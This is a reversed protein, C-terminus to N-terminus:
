PVFLEESLRDAAVAAPTLLMPHYRNTLWRGLMNAYFPSGIIGSQGGPIIQFANVGASTMEGVFRRSPGSGFMFGNISSARANHSSADVVEYGGARGVGRLGPGVDEFGAAQPINFPGGLVHDFVIRHLKGWRYDTQNTSNGFAAAFTNSALLDLAERLSRLLLIDRAAEPTPAGNVVFFNVGSAGRGRRTAFNDLLHRLASLAQDDPPLQNRLGVRTLAADITNAIIRSRWVSYITAAVSHRIETDSPEALNDPNDGPDYGQRLGTPTSFNWGALRAIAEGVGPDNALEALPASAGFNRGNTYANLIYPTLVEADLMQNNGQFRMMDAVSIKGGGALKAQILRVIRGMRNGNAYGVNLYYIGGGRRVQNLPNNDLTTGIPDQNANAVFGSSPNVVQPMEDFPLIEYDLAQGPQRNQVPLWENRNQGTGDRFLFPPLGSVEGAQLDERLPLESSTFYAINGDVDAYSWNQSGFDFFQLGQKFDDINRARAFVRFTELEQTARLGTYQISIGLFDFVTQVIPGNNRRPVILTVGGQTPGVNAQALNDPVGDGARNVRFTQPIFVIPEERGRFVTFSFPGNPGPRLEEFYADTVDLPNVTAGWCIRDNCGLVVGPAGAFSVGNVNMPGFQPDNAVTLHAEYWTPATDLALHPDSALLPAGSETKSGSIVWWNSGNGLGLANQFFPMDKIKELYQRAATLAEPPVVTSLNRAAQIMMTRQKTAAASLFGPISVTPDFPASRFVDEFMLTTGDFGGAQGARQYDGLALSLEIDILDFSLGFAILKGIALSDVPDWPQVSAKTLELATYEPPLPHAADFVYANVGDAYAQLLARSEPSLVALSEQAGRRLGFTRVQIDQSLAPPGLLEALAGSALHRQYDMQFFRDQAHVYGLLFVADHDNEAYIHPIYNSDRVIRAPARLGRLQAAQLTRAAGSTSSGVYPIFSLILLPLFVLSFVKKRRM